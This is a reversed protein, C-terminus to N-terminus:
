KGGIIDFNIVAYVCDEYNREPIVIQVTPPNRQPTAGGKADRSIEIQADGLQIGQVHEFKHVGDLILAGIISEQIYVDNM